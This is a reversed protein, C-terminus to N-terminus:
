ERRSVERQQRTWADFPVEPDGLALGPYPSAPSLYDQARRRASERARQLDSARRNYEVGGYRNRHTRRGPMSLPPNDGLPLPPPGRSRMSALNARRRLCLDCVGCEHHVASERTRPQRQTASAPPATSQSTATSATASAFSSGASPPQPDPTLTTLLTDWTGNADPSLSRERDGLGDLPAARHEEYRSSGDAYLEWPSITHPSARDRSAYSGFSLGADPSRWRGPGSDDDQDGLTLGGYRRYGLPPSPLSSAEYPHGLSVLRARDLVDSLSYDPPDAEQPPDRPDDTGGRVDSLISALNPYARGSRELRSRIPALDIREVTMQRDQLSGRDEDSNRENLHPALFAARQRQSRRQFDRELEHPPENLRSRRQIGRSPRLVKDSTKTKVDRESSPSKSVYLRARFLNARAHGALARTPPPPM